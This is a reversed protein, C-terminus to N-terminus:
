VDVNDENDAGASQATEAKARRLSATFLPTTSSWLNTPKGKGLFVFPFGNPKGFEATYEAM